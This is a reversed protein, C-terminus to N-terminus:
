GLLLILGFMWIPNILISIVLVTIAAGKRTAWVVWWAAAATTVLGVFLSATNVHLVRDGSEWTLAQIAVVGLVVMTALGVLAIVRPVVTSRAPRETM